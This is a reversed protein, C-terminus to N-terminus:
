VFNSISNGVLNITNITYKQVERRLWNACNLPFLVLYKLTVGSIRFLTFTSIRLFVLIYYSFRGQIVCLGTNCLTKKISIKEQFTNTCQSNNTSQCGHVLFSYHSFFSIALIIYPCFQPFFFYMSFFSSHPFNGKQSHFLKGRLM